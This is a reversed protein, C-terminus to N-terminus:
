QSRRAARSKAVIAERREPTQAAWWDRKTERMREIVEPTHKHGRNAQSIKARTEPSTPPRPGRPKGTNGAGIKARHEPSLPGHIRPHCTRCLTILNEMMNHQPNTDRHHIVLNRKGPLQPAGCKQCRHQDRELVAQRLGGFRENDHRQAVYAQRAPTARLQAQKANIAEAHRERYRRQRARNKEPDERQRQIARREKTVAEACTPCYTRRGSVEILTGCRACPKEM